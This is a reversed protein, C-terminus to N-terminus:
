KLAGAEVKAQSQFEASRDSQRLIKEERSFKEAFDISFM